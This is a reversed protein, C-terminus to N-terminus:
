VPLYSRIDFGHGIGLQVDLQTDPSEFLVDWQIDSQICQIDLPIVHIDKRIDFLIDMQIDMQIDAYDASIQNECSKDM